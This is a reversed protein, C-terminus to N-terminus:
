RGAEVGEGDGIDAGRGGGRTWPSLRPKAARTSDRSYGLGKNWEAPRNPRAKQPDLAIARMWRRVRGGCIPGGSRDHRTGIRPIRVAGIAIVHLPIVVHVGGRRLATSGSWPGGAPTARRARRHFVVERGTSGTWLPYFGDPHLNRAAGCKLDGQAWGRAGTQKWPGNDLNGEADEWGVAGRGRVAM